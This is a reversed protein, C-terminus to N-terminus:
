LAGFVRSAQSMERGAFIYPIITNKFTPKEKTEVIAKIREQKIEAATKLADVYESVKLEKFPPIGYPTNWEAIWTNNTFTSAAFLASAIITTM